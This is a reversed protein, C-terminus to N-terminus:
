PQFYMDWDIVRIVDCGNSTSNFNEGPRHLKAGPQKAQGGMGLLRGASCYGPSTLLSMRGARVWWPKKM